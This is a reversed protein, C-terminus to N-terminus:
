SANELWFKYDDEKKYNRERIIFFMVEMSMKIWENWQTEKNTWSSWIRKNSEYNPNFFIM